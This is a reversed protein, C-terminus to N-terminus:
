RDPGTRLKLGQGQLRRREALWRRAVTPDPTVGSV